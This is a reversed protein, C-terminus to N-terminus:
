GPDPTELCLTDLINAPLSLLNVRGLVVDNHNQAAKACDRLGPSCQEQLLAAVDGIGPRNTPNWAWCNLMLEWIEDILGREDALGFPRPPHQKNTVVEKLFDGPLSLQAFPVDGTYIKELLSM